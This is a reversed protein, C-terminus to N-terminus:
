NKIKMNIIDCIITLYKQSSLETFRKQGSTDIICLEINQELCAQFKRNDNNQISSLKDSGYIPEYHFIGNLEFALNLSPMYIDLESNIQTKSNYLIELNPYLKSLELELYIELKSRRTGSTKNCNNYTASCSSSCFHNKSKSMGSPHRTFQVNCQKCFLTVKNRQNQYLCEQSCYEHKTIGQINKYANRNSRNFVTNCEHCTYTQM